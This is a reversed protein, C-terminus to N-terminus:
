KIMPDMLILSKSNYIRKPTTKTPERCLWQETATETTNNYIRRM